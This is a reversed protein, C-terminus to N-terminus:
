EENFLNSTLEYTHKVFNRSEKWVKLQHHPKM